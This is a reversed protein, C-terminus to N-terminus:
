SVCTALFAYVATGAVVGLAGMALGLVLASASRIM